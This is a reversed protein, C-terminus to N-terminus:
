VKHFLKIVMDQRQKINYPKWLSNFENNTLQQTLLRITCWIGCTSTNESQLKYENYILKCNHRQIYDLLLANLFTFDANMQQRGAVHDFNTELLADPVHGTSDFYNMGEKNEFLCCFHGIPYHLEYLLVCPLIDDLQELQKLKHYQIFSVDIGHSKLKDTIDKNSLPKDIPTKLLSM